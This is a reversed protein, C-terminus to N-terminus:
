QLGPQYCACRGSYFDSCKSLILTCVFEELTVGMNRKEPLIIATHDFVTSQLRYPQSFYAPTDAGFAQIMVGQVAVREGEVLTCHRPPQVIRKNFDQSKFDKKGQATFLYEPALGTCTQVRRLSNHNITSEELHDILKREGPDTMRSHLKQTSAPILQDTNADLSFCQPRTASDDAKTCLRYVKTAVTLPRSLQFYHRQCGTADNLFPQNIGACTRSEESVPEGRGREATTLGLAVKQVDQTSLLLRLQDRTCRQRGRDSGADAEVVCSSTASQAPTLIDSQQLREYQEYLAATAELEAQFNVLVESEGAPNLECRRRCQYYCQGIRVVKKDCVIPSFPSTEFMQDELIMKDWPRTIHGEVPLQTPCRQMLRFLFAAKRQAEFESLRPRESFLTQSISDKYETPSWMREWVSLERQEIVTGVINAANDIEEDFGEVRVM